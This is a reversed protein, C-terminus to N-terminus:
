FIGVSVVNRFNQSARSTEGSTIMASLREIDDSLSSAFSVTSRMMSFHIHPLFGTWEPPDAKSPSYIRNKSRFAAIQAGLVPMMKSGKIKLEKYKKSNCVYLCKVYKLYRITHQTFVTHSKRFRSSAQNGRSAEHTNLIDAIRIPPSHKSSIATPWLWETLQQMWVSESCSLEKKQM